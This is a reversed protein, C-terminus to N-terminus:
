ANENARRNWVEVARQETEKNACHYSEEVKCSVTGGRAHCKCCRVTASHTGTYHYRGNHKSVIKLRTSGCFPCPKLEVKEM